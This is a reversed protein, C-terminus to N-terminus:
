HYAMNWFDLELAVVKRVAADAAAREEESAAALAEDAQAQLAVCYEVFGLNGWRLFPHNSPPRLLTPPYSSSFNLCPTAISCLARSAGGPPHKYPSLVQTLLRISALPSSATGFLLKSLPMEIYSVPM